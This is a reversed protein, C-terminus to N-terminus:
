NVPMAAAALVPGWIESQLIVLLHYSVEACPALHAKLVKVERACTFLLPYRDLEGVATWPFDPHQNVVFFLQHPGNFGGAALSAKHARGSDGCAPM